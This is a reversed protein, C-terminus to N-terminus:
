DWLPVPGRGGGRQMWILIAETTTDVQDDHLHSDDATFAEHENLYPDVWKYDPLKPDPVFIRGASLPMTCQQVRGVKDTSAMVHHLSDQQNNNIREDPTWGRAPIQVGPQRLVQVLSQGSAKDEVWFETAPTIGSRRGTHKDWFAKANAVLSPFEWKGRVQDLLYMGSTGEIGWCQFVSWDNADGAKFATDATIIKLTIRKEVEKLDRWYRFWEKKIISSIADTPSQMYQSWYVDPRLEKMEMLEAYSIREEWISRGHEDHAPIQVVTWKHRETRLLHGALDQPHLRQMILVVPTQPTSKRNKRSELTGHFWDICSKRAAPSDKDNAKLPDDILICGGFEERLKGAGFGTIGGGTGVAKVSGGAETYFHDQLGAAKDGIMKVRAGWDSGVMSRYWDAGLTNRIYVANTTALDAAYSSLITESDPFYSHAWPVFAKVGLDTKGIRPPELIMLNPTELQGLVLKTLAEAKVQHCPHIDTPLGQQYRQIRWFDILTPYYSM